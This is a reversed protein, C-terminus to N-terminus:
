GQEHIRGCVYHSNTLYIIVEEPRLEKVGHIHPIGFMRLKRGFHLPLETKNLNLLADHRDLSLVAEMGLM